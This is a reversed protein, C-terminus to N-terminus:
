LLIGLKREIGDKIFLDNPSIKILNLKHEMALKLKQKMLEDYRKLEGKLGFFEVWYNGVKFDVTFKKNGPYPFNRIHKIKRAFLYDDIIKEALSDCRDGDKAIYKKAFMVPNPIFGAAKVANNWTGFRFRAAHVHNYEYKYPIRGNSKFFRQIFNIIEDKTIIMSLDKCRRSCFKEKGFFEKGCHACIKIIKGHNRPYKKNNVTASCRLSCFYNKSETSDSPNRFFKKSCKPNSCVFELRKRRSLGLCKNSCYVKWGNKISENVRRSDRFVDKGCYSCKQLLFPM